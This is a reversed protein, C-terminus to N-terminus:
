KAMLSKSLWWPPLFIKWFIELRDEDLDLAYSSYGTRLSNDEKVIITPKEKKPEINTSDQFEVM